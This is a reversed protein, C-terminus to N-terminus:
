QIERLTNLRFPVTYDASLTVLAAAGQLQYRKILRPSAELLGGVGSTYSTHQADLNSPIIAESSPSIVCTSWVKVHCTDDPHPEAPNDDM